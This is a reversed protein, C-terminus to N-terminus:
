ACRMRTGNGKGTATFARQPPDPQLLTLVAGVPLSPGETALCFEGSREQAVVGFAPVVTATQLALLAILVM